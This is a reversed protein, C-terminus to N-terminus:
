RPTRKDAAEAAEVFKRFENEKEPPPLFDNTDLVRLAQAPPAVQLVLTLDGSGQFYFVRITHPGATLNVKGEETSPPHLGDHEIVMKKDLQLKSGDDSTLAFVYRGPKAIWIHAVYEIAFWTLRDLVGPSSQRPHINLRTTYVTGQPHLRNFKPLEVTMVPLFYVRGTFGRSSYVTTGFTAKPEEQAFLTSSVALFMTLRIPM